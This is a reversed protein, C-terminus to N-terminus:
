GGMCNELIQAVCSILLTLCQRAFVVRQGFLFSINKFGASLPNFNDKDHFMLVM